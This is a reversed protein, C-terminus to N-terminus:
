CGIEKNFLNGGALGGIIAIWKGIFKRIFYSLVSDNDFEIKPAQDLRLTGVSCNM